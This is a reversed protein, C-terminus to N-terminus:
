ANESHTFYAKRKSLLFMDWVLQCKAYCFTQQVQLIAIVEIEM